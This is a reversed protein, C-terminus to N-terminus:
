ESCEFKRLYVALKELTEPNDHCNGLALNCGACLIGRFIKKNHDHDLHEEGRPIMDGCGQCHGDFGKFIKEAIEVHDSSLGGIFLRHLRKKVSCVWCATKGDEAPAACHVCLNKEKCTRYYKQFRLRQEGAHERHYKQRYARREETHESEYKQQVSRVKEPNEQRWKRQRTLHKERDERYYRRHRARHEEAHEQRYRRGNAAIASKHEQRYKRKRIRVKEKAHVECYKTVPSTTVRFVGCGDFLCAITKPESLM